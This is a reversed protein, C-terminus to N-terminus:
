CDGLDRDIMDDVIRASMTVLPLGGGPHSSGGVLYLGRRSGRNRPRAFAARRGDSSTGYISGGPSRFRHELDSPVVTETFLVRERLDVGHEALRGLVLSTAAVRDVAAGSPVNVLLFWNEHGEPAQSPDTVSSVCAYITPDDPLRGADLADYERRYDESFWINHHTIGPTTGRVGACIVFGSTSPTARRVRRLARDDPLLDRYLHTADANAVVVDAHEVSGDALQVGRVADSTAIVARVDSGCEIRVGVREAVRVFADRLAGLGGMPYWCGYEHEVHAICSLTAPARYPSSGSYTAYRGAWQAMEHDGGFAETAADHLTRLPDIDLLDRPSRMRRALSWPGSMPGAFFTRESVEWITRGRAIFETYGPVDCGADTVDLTRGSPWRYRFQPDLRVLEVEDALTTGARQFLEDYVHPLTVLSPGTDFTFGDRELVALKGGPVAHREHVTVDHGRVRLRIAAALGGVGGGVVAVSRVGAM